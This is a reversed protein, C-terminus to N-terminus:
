FVLLEIVIRRHVDLSAELNLIPQKMSLVQDLWTYLEFPEIGFWTLIM